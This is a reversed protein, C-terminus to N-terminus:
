YIGTNINTAINQNVMNNATDAPQTASELSFVDEAPVEGQLAGNQFLPNALDFMQNMMDDSAMDMGLFSTYNDTFLQNMQALTDAGEDFSQETQATLLGIEQTQQLTETATTLQALASEQEMAVGSMEFEQGYDLVENEESPESESDSSQLHLFNAALLYRMIDAGFPTTNNLMKASSQAAQKQPESEILFYQNVLKTSLSRNSDPFIKKSDYKRMRCIFAGGNQKLQNVLDRTLPRYTPSKTDSNFKELMEVHYTEFYNFQACGETESDSFFDNSSDLINRRTDKSRSLIVSKFAPPMNFLSRTNAPGPNRLYVNM